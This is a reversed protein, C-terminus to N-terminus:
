VYKKNVNMQLQISAAHKVLINRLLQLARWSPACLVNDDTYALVNVYIGGINCGANAEALECLM